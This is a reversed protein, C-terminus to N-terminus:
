DEKVRGEVHQEMRFDSDLPDNVVSDRSVLLDSQEFPFNSTDQLNELDHSVPLNSQELPFESTGTLNEMNVVPAHSVLLDFQEFSFESTGSLIKMNVVPDPLVLLDSQQLAQSHSSTVVALQDSAELVFDEQGTISKLAANMQQVSAHYAPDQFFHDTYDRGDTLETGATPLDMELQVAQKGVEFNFLSDLESWDENVWREVHHEMGFESDLQENAASGDSVWQDSQKLPFESTGRSIRLESQELPFKSTTPLNDVADRVLRDSQEFPFESTGPLNEM